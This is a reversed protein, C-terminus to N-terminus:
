SATWGGDVALIVGTVRAASALYLAARAVDDPEGYGLLHRAALHSDVNGAHLNERARGTLTIGPAVANVRIGAPAYEVAMSRTLAIVAGKAASYAHRGGSGSVGAASATNIIAGSGTSIMGPLIARCMLYTGGLDVTLTRGFESPEVLHIPGDAPTSGGANNYLVSVCGYAAQIDGVVARVSDENSVDLVHTSASRGALRIAVVCGDAAEQSKDLVCVHRGSAAFLEAAARGIGSGGGTIVVVGDTDAAEADAM